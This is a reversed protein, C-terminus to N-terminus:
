KKELESHCYPCRELPEWKPIYAGCWPCVTYSGKGTRGYIPVGCAPCHDAGDPVISDCAGCRNVSKTFGRVPFIKLKVPQQEENM